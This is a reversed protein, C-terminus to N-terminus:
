VLDFETPLSVKMIDEQLAAPLEQCYYRGFELFLIAGLLFYRYKRKLANYNELEELRPTIARPFGNQKQVDLATESM